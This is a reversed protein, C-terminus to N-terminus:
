TVHSSNLRTSKRDSANLEQLQKLSYSRDRQSKILESLEYMKEIFAAVKVFYGLFPEVVSNETSITHIRERYLELREEVEENEQQFLKYYNM